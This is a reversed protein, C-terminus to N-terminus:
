LKKSFGKERLLRQIIEMCTPDPFRRQSLVQKINTTKSSEGLKSPKKSPRNVPVSPGSVMGKAALLASGFDDKTRPIDVSQQHDKPTPQISSICLRGSKEMIGSLCRGAM